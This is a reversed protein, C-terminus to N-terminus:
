DEVREWKDKRWKLRDHYADTVAKRFCDALTPAGVFAVCRNSTIKARLTLLVDVESFKVSFGTLVGGSHAVSGLLEFEVAAVLTRDVELQKKQRIEDITLAM